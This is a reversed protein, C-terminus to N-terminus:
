ARVGLASLILTAAEVSPFYWYGPVPGVPRVYVGCFQVLGRELRAHVDSPSGTVNVNSQQVIM